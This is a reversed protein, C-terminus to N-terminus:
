SPELARLYSSFGAPARGDARTGTRVPLAASSHVRLGAAAARSALDVDEGTPLPRWGGLRRYAEARVILNAGHVYPHGDRLDHGAYWARETAATLGPGPLVTGLVLDADRTLAEASLLWDPPVATDADTSAILDAGRRLAHAAGIGRTRGVCRASTELLTTEAYRRVIDCTADTCTDAVVVVDTQGSYNRAACLISDLCAGITAAEDAAPVVVAIHPRM